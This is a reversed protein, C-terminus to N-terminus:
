QQSKDVGKDITSKEVANSRHLAKALQWNFDAILLASDFM